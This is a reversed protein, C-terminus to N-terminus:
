DKATWYSQLKCGQNEYVKSSHRGVDTEQSILLARRLYIENYWVFYVLSVTNLIDEYLRQGRNLNKFGQIERPEGAGVIFILKM